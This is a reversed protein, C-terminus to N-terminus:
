DQCYTFRIVKEKTKRAGLELNAFDGDSSSLQDFCGRVRPRKIQSLLRELESDSFSDDRRSFKSLSM